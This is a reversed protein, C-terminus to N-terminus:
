ISKIINIFHVIIVLCNSSDDAAPYLDAAVVDQSANKLIIDASLLPRWRSLHKCRSISNGFVAILIM